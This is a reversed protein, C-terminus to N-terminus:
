LATAIQVGLNLADAIGGPIQTALQTATGCIFDNCGFDFAGPQVYALPDIHGIVNMVQIFQPEQDQTGGPDVRNIPDGRTYAYRNWSGPDSPGGSAMYRDPSMFRGYNNAYYRQDAYDFGTLSDRWYTGFKWNDNASNSSGKEEGYPYYTGVSSLRDEKQVRRGGFYADSKLLTVGMAYTSGTYVVNIQYAGLKQGGPTYVNATYGNTNGGYGDVTTGDWIFFRKNQADYGYATASSPVGILRNEADWVYGGTVNGNADYSPGVIRNTAPDVAVSLVPPSGKTATKATLSGFTAL